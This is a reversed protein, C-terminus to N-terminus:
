EAIRSASRSVSVGTAGQVCEFVQGRVRESRGESQHWKKAGTGVSTCTSGAHRCKERSSRTSRRDMGKVAIAM